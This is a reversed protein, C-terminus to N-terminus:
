PINIVWVAPRISRFTFFALRKGDPSWSVSGGNLSVKNTVYHIEGTALDKIYLSGRDYKGNGDKSNNRSSVFALKTGDPSLAPLRNDFEDVIVPENENTDPDIAWISGRGFDMVQATTGAVAVIKPVPNMKTYYIKNDVGWCPSNLLDADTGTLMTVSSSKLDVIMLQANYPGKGRSFVIRQGDPAWSPERDQGGNTLQKGAGGPYEKIWIASNLDKTNTGFARRTMAIRKGDPSWRPSFDIIGSTGTLLTPQAAPDLSWYWIHMKSAPEGQMKGSYVIAKGSPAWDCSWIDINGSLLRTETGALHAYPNSREDGDAWLSGSAILFLVLIVILKPTQVKTKIKM